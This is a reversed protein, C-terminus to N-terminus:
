KGYCLEPHKKIWDFFAQGNLNKWEPELKPESTPSQNLAEETIVEKKVEEKVVEEGEEVEEQCACTKESAVTKKNDGCEDKVTGCDDKVTEVVEGEETKETIEEKKDEKDEKKEKEALCEALTTKVLEIIEEKTMEIEENPKNNLIINEKTQIAPTNTAAVSVLEIPEGNENLKFVPSLHRYERNEIM